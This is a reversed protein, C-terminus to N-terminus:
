RHGPFSEAPDHTPALGVISGRNPPDISRAGKVIKGRAGQEKGNKAGQEKKVIKGAINENQESGQEKKIIKIAGPNKVKEM